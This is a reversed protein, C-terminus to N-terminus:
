VEVTGTWEATAMGTTADTDATKELDVGTDMRTVNETYLRLAKIDMVM